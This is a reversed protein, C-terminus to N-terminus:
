FQDLVQREFWERLRLGQGRDKRELSLVGTKIELISIASLYFQQPSNHTAWSVLKPDAKEPRRLESVVNTDLVYTM